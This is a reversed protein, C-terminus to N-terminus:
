QQGEEETPIAGLPNEQPIEDQASSPEATEGLDSAAQKLASKHDEHETQHGESHVTYKHGGEPKPEKRITVERAHSQIKGIEKKEMGESKKAGQQAAEQPGPLSHGMSLGRGYGGPLHKGASDFAM